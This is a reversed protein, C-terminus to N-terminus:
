LREVLQDHLRQRGVGRELARPRRQALRLFVQRHLLARNVRGDVRAEVGRALALAPTLTATTPPTPTAGCLPDDSDDSDYSSGRTHRLPRMSTLGRAPATLGLPATPVSPTVGARLNRQPLLTVGSGGNGGSSGSGVLYPLTATTAVSGSMTSSNRASLWVTQQPQHQQQQPQYLQSQHYLSLHSGQSPPSTNHPQLPSPFTFPEHHSGDLMSISTRRFPQQPQQVPLQLSRRPAPFGGGANGAPPAAAPPTRVQQQQQQQRQPPQSGNGEGSWSARQGSPLLPEGSGGSTTSNHSSTRSWHQQQQQQSQQQQHQLNVLHMRPVPAHGPVPVGSEASDRRQSAPHSTAHAAAPVPPPATPPTPLPPPSTAPAAAAATAAPAAAASSPTTAATPPNNANPPTGAANSLPDTTHGSGSTVRRHVGHPPPQQPHSSQPLQQPHSVCHPGSSVAAAAAAAGSLSGRQQQQQQQQLTSGGHALNVGGTDALALSGFGSTRAADSPMAASDTNSKTRRHAPQQQQQEDVISTDHNNRAYSGKNNISHHDTSHGLSHPERHSSRRPPASAGSASSNRQSRAAAAAQAAAVRGEDRTAEQERHFQQQQQQQEQQQEQIRHRSYSQQDAVLQMGPPLLRGVGDFYPHQLLADASPRRTPDPQLCLKLVDMAAADLGPSCTPRTGQRTNIQAQCTLAHRIHLSLCAGVWRHELPELEAPVPLRFCQFQPDNELLHLQSGPMEGICKLILFLQDHHNKGPFLPKGALMEAMICGLSWIDVQTGYTDGVLVEPARYWRTVVYTTYLAASAAHAAVPRAFGFDCLKVVGLPTLLVNSPKIDRHIIQQRHLYSLACLLQYVLLKVTPLPLGAGQRQSKLEQLLTQEVYEFVLYLRGSQSCYAEYLRIINVHRVLQLLRVERLAIESEEESQAVDKLKKCAVIEGTIKDQCRWVSGYAGEGVRELFEYREM